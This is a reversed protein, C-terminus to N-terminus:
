QSIFSYTSVLEHLRQQAKAHGEGLSSTKWFGEELSPSDDMMDNKKEVFPVSSSRPIYADETIGTICTDEAINEQDQYHVNSQQDRADDWVFVNNLSTVLEQTEESLAAQRVWLHPAGVASMVRSIEHYLYPYHWLFSRIVLRDAGAIALMDCVGKVAAHPVACLRPCRVLVGVGRDGLEGVLFDMLPILQDDVDARLVGPCKRILWTLASGRVGQSKLYSVVPDINHRVSLRFVHKDEESLWMHQIDFDDLGIQKRLVRKVYQENATERRVSTMLVVVSHMVTAARGAMKMVANEKENQEEKQVDERVKKNEEKTADDGGEMGTEEEKERSPLGKVDTQHQQKPHQPHGGGGDGGAAARQTIHHYSQTCHVLM